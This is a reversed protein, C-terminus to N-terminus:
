EYRFAVFMTREGRKILFRAVKDRSGKKLAVEYDAVTQIRQGNLERVLDGAQLGAAAAQSEPKVKTIVIGETEKIRLTRALEQSNKQVKLGISDSLDASTEDGWDDSMRAVTVTVEEEKGDRFIKMSVDKGVAAAAVQRPLENMEHIDKGNFSLIVDGPKLVKEAPSNPIVESVLAGKEGTLGFSEALDATIPQITVGLWGRTVKGKDRLQPIIGKAMNVPIAFGIGQGGAIIATNIGVVEGASNFLPGGSNGPNISADTQLYDDYPGSGIVRGKASIIGATVTASLGFPNGIAMVWEGVQIQDSDGMKAVPLHSQKDIKILALDLKEDQGKIVAKFERGDTLKVKVEDAGNVVHNNTLIYGDESIIFGSGLSSQRLNNQPQEEFFRDFFDQFPDGGSPPGFPNQRLQRKQKKLVKATSINVVSPKLNKALEVFDPSVTKASSYTPVCFSLSLILLPLLCNGLHRM